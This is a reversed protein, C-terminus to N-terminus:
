REGYKQNLVNGIKHIYIYEPKSVSFKIVLKSSPCSLSNIEDFFYEMQNLIFLTLEM